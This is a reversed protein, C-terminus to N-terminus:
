RLVGLFESVRFIYQLLGFIQSMHIKWLSICGFSPSPIAFLTSGSWVARPATQDPDVSNAWVQRDSFKPVKRYVKYIGPHLAIRFEFVRLVHLQFNSVFNVRQSQLIDGGPVSPQECTPGMVRGSLHRTAPSKFNCTLVQQCNEVKSESFKLFQHLTWKPNYSHPNVCKIFKWDKVTYM